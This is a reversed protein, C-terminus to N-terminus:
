GRLQEAGGQKPGTAEWPAEHGSFGDLSGAGNVLLLRVAEGDIQLVSVSVPDIVFRQFRDLPAGAAHCLAIRVIDGHTAIAV